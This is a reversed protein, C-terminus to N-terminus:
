VQGGTRWHLTNPSSPFGYESVSREREGRSNEFAVSVVLPTESPTEGTLQITVKNM